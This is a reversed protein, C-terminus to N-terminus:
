FIFKGTKEINLGSIQYFYTGKVLESPLAITNMANGELNSSFVVKGTIDLVNIQAKYENKEKLDIFMNGDYTYVKFNNKSTEIVNTTVPPNYIFEIDDLWLKSGAVSTMQNDSSTINVLVYEPTSGNVYVFPVSFRKWVTVNSAPTNFVARGIRNASLDAHNNSVPTEPDFYNGTHLVVAVKGIEATAGTGTTPQTYKYWGVLSDPRGTFATRRIDTADSHNITGIYGKSKDTDPANVVGTTLNGNIITNFVLVKVSEIRVCATGTHPDTTEKFATQSGLSAISSGSKNSYWGTPEAAVGPANNGWNEFGANPVQLQAGASLAVGSFILYLLNRKM